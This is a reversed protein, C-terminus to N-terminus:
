GSWVLAGNIKACETAYEPQQALEWGQIAGAVLRRIQHLFIHREEEESKDVCPLEMLRRAKRLHRGIFSDVCSKLENKWGHPLFMQFHYKVAQFYEQAKEEEDIM